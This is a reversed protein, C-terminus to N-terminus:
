CGSGQQEGSAPFGLERWAEAKMAEARELLGLRVLGGRQDAPIPRTEPLLGAIAHRLGDVDGQYSVLARLHANLNDLEDCVRGTEDWSRHQHKEVQKRSLGCQGCRDPYLDAM